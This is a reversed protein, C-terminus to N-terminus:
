QLRKVIFLFPVIKDQLWEFLFVLFMSNRLLVTVRKTYMEMRFFLTATGM